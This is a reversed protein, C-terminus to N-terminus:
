KLEFEEEFIKLYKELVEINRRDGSTLYKLIRYMKAQIGQIKYYYIDGEILIKEAETLCNIERAETRECNEVFAKLKDKRIIVESPTYTYCSNLLIYGNKFCKLIKNFCEREKKISNEKEMESKWREMGVLM